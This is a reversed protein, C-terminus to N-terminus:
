RPMLTKYTTESEEPARAGERQVRRVRRREDAKPSEEEGSLGCGLGVVGLKSKTENASHKFGDRVGATLRTVSQPERRKGGASVVDNRRRKVTMATVMMHYVLRSCGMLIPIQYEAFPAPRENPPRM